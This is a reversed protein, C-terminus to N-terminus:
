QNDITVGNIYIVPFKSIDIEPKKFVDAELHLKIARQIVQPSEIGNLYKWIQVGITPTEKWHGPASIVILEIYIDSPDGLKFQGTGDDIMGRERVIPPLMKDVQISWTLSFLGM